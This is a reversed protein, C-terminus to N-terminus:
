IITAIRVRPNPNQCPLNPAHDEAFDGRRGFRKLLAGSQLSLHNDPNVRFFRQCRGHLAIVLAALGSLAFFEAATAAPPGWQRFRLRKEYIHNTKARSQDLVWGPASSLGSKILFVSLIKLSSRPLCICVSDLAPQMTKSRNPLFPHIHLPLAGRREQSTGPGSTIWDRKLMGNM